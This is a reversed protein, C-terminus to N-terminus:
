NQSWDGLLARARANVKILFTQLSPASELYCFLNCYPLRGEWCGAFYKATQPIGFSYQFSFHKKNLCIM